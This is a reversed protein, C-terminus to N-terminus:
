FVTSVDWQSSFDLVPLDPKPSARRKAEKVEDPCSSNEPSHCITCLHLIAFFKENKGKIVEFLFGFVCLWHIVTNVIVDALFVSAAFVVFDL